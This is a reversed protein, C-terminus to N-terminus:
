QSKRKFARTGDKITGRVGSSVVNHEIVKTLGHDGEQFTMIRFDSHM